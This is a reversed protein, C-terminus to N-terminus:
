YKQPYGKENLADMSFLLLIKKDEPCYQMDM